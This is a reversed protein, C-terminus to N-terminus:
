EKWFWQFIKYNEKEMCSSLMGSGSTATRQKRQGQIAVLDKSSPLVNLSALHKSENDKSNGSRTQSGNM